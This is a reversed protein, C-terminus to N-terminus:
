KLGVFLNIGLYMNTLNKQLQLVAFNATMRHVSSGYSPDQEAPDIIGRMKAKQRNKNDNGVWGCLIDKKMKKEESSRAKGGFLVSELYM